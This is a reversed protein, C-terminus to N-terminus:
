DQYCCCENFNKKCSQCVSTPNGEPALGEPRLRLGWVGAEPPCQKTTDASRYESVCKKYFHDDKDCKFCTKKATAMELKLMRIQCDTLNLNSYSGGRVNEIGYKIMYKKVKTDEEFEDPPNKDVEVFDVPKYIRTWIPGYGKTHQEFRKKLDFSRGVYFKNSLLRLVYISSSM